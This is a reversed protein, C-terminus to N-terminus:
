IVEFRRDQRSGAIVVVPIKIHAIINSGMHKKKLQYGEASQDIHYETVDRSRSVYSSSTSSYCTEATSHLSSYRSATVIVTSSLASSDDVRDTTITIQM